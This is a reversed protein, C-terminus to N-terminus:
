HLQQQENFIHEFLITKQQVGSWFWRHIPGSEHDDADDDLSTPHQVNREREREKQSARESARERVNENTDHLVCSIKGEKKNKQINQIELTRGKAKQIESKVVVEELLFPLSSSSSFSMLRSSSSCAMWWERRM